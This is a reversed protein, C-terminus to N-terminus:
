DFYDFRENNLVGLAAIVKQALSKLSRNKYRYSAQTKSWEDLM